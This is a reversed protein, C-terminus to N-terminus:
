EQEFNIEAIANRIHKITAKRTSFNLYVAIVDINYGSNLFVAHEKLYSDATKLIKLQKPKTVSEEPTGFRSGTRAKVEIFTLMGGRDLAVIDIEGCKCRYNYERIQYGAGALYRGAIKEGLAGIDSRKLM